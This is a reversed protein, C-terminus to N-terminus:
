GFDQVLEFGCVCVEIVCDPHNKFPWSEGNIGARFDDGRQGLSECMFSRSLWYNTALSEPGIRSQKLRGANGTNEEPDVACASVCRNFPGGDFREVGNCFNQFGCDFIERLLTHILRLYVFVSLTM